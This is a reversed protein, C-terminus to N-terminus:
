WGMMATTLRSVMSKTCTNSHLRMMTTCRVQKPVPRSDEGQNPIVKLLLGTFHLRCVCDSATWTRLAGNRKPASIPTRFHQMAAIPMLPDLAEKGVKGVEPSPKFCHQSQIMYSLCSCVLAHMWECSGLESFVGCFVEVAIPCWFPDVLKRMREM